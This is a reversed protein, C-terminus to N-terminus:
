RGPCPISEGNPGRCLQGPRLGGFCQGNIRVGGDPCRPNAVNTPVFASSFGVPPIIGGTIVPVQPFFLAKKYEEIGYYSRFMKDDSSSTVGVIPKGKLESGTGSDSEQGAKDADETGPLRNKGMEAATTLLPPITPPLKQKQLYAMIADRLDAPERDGLYVLNWNGEESTCPKLPDCLASARLFRVKKGPPGIRLGGDMEGDVLNKKLNTPFKGTTAFFQAIAMQIQQGRWMMEEEKERQMEKKLVPAAATTLIMAFLIIGILAILAYGQEGHRRSTHSQRKAQNM